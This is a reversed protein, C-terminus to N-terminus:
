ALGEQVQMEDGCLWRWIADGFYWQLVVTVLFSSVLGGMMKINSSELLLANSLLLCAGLSLGMVSSPSKEVVFRYCWGVLWGWLFIPAFMGPIGFDIYSEGVYGISISTGRDTGAVYVGTYANTRDSDNIVPKGPFLLRPMLPHLVAEKWLKGQTHAISGPVAQLSHGFYEVYSLRRAGDSVGEALDSTTVQPLADYLWRVRSGVSVKVVQAQEGQSLFTRYPAKIAQWFSLMGLLVACAILLNTSRIAGLSYAGSGALLLVFLVQKFGSFYGMIGIFVEYALVIAVLLRGEGDRTMWRLFLMLVIAWKWINVALIAQRIAPFRAAAIGLFLMLVTVLVWAKFLRRSDLGNLDQFFRDAGVAHMPRTALHLGCALAGIAILTLLTSQEFQGGGMLSAISRRESMALFVPAFGQLWQFGVIFLLAQSQGPRWLLYAALTAIATGLLGVQPNPSFAVFSAILLLAVWITRPANGAMGDNAEEATAELARIHM